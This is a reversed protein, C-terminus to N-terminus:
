AAGQLRRRTEWGKRSAASRRRAPAGQVYALHAHWEPWSGRERCVADWWENATTTTLILSAERILYDRTAPAPAGRGLIADVVGGNIAHELKSRFSEYREEPTTVEDGWSGFAKNSPGPQM